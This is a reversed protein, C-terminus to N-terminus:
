LQHENKQEKPQWGFRKWTDQVNTQAANRYVYRSDTIPITPLVPKNM